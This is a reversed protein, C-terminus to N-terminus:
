GAALAYVEEVPMQVAQAIKEVPMQMALLNRAVEMKGEAKGEVIGEAKGRAIWEPIIGAETFVEEFTKERSRTKAAMNQVELFIEPNARLLVDLYAGFPAKGVQRKGERLIANVSRIGLDKTLSKLWLNENEPLKKSEIIQIPLYDGFVTYIGSNTEEVKYHRIKSLYKIFERPHRNEIFTITIDSFDVEPTIAAYLNAYAYVKMFDKVSLSDDPSKYELLNDSRFIRAINKNIALEKPKKIIILDIRLPEATLQYEYKFELSDKYELLELQIAQLFAPHWHINSAGSSKLKKDNM